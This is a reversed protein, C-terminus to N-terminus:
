GLAPRLGSGVSRGHDAHQRQHLRVGQGARRPLTAEPEAERVNTGYYGKANDSFPNAGSESWDLGTSMTLLHYLNIKAYCGEKYEPLFDGVPQFVDNIKGEGM